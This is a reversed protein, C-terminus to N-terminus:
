SPCTCVSITCSSLGTDDCNTTTEASCEDYDSPAGADANDTDGAGFLDDSGAGGELVDNGDDGCLADDGGNGEMHDAGGGGYIEDPLPGGLLTDDGDQGCICDGHDGGRITDKGDSGILTDGGKNGNLTCLSEQTSGINALCTITDGDDGGHIDHTIDESHTAPTEITDAGELAHVEVVCPTGGHSCKFSQSASGDHLELTDANSTGYLVIKRTDEFGTACCFGSGNGATGWVEMGDGDNLFNTSAANSDGPIALDCTWVENPSSGSVSCIDTTGGADCDDDSDLSNDCERAYGM